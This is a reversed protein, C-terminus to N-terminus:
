CPRISENQETEKLILFRQLHEGTFVSVTHKSKATESGRASRPLHCQQWGWSPQVTSQVTHRSWCVYQLFTLLFSIHFGAKDPLLPLACVKQQNAVTARIDFYRLPGFNKLLSTARPQADSSQNIRMQRQLALKVLTHLM